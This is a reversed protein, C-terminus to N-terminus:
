SINILPTTIVASTFSVTRALYASAAFCTSPPPRPSQQPGLPHAGQPHSGILESKYELESVAPRGALATRAESPHPLGVARASSCSPSTTRSRPDPPPMSTSSDACRTPGVPLAYPTSM